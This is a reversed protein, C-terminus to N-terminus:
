QRARRGRGRGTEPNAVPAVRQGPGRQETRDAATGETIAGNYNRAIGYWEAVIRPLGVAPEHLDPAKEGEDAVNM